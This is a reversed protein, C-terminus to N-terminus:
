KRYMALMRKTVLFGGSINITAFFIAAVSLATAPATLAGSAQLLGGVIIIGSIANTVAMLPTHLSHSVNWVVQWGVFCALIFVTFHQLFESSEGSSDAGSTVKLYTWLLALPVTALLLWPRGPGEDKAQLMVPEVEPKKAAPPPEIRPPPWLVEGKECILAGRVVEDEHDVAFGDEKTMDSLLHVLNQAYLESATVPLRCTLDRHGVITVGHAVIVEGPETCACNGGQEAALDVVVSGPKMAKVMEENWLIPAKSGAVLATTIVIDVDAAQEMFLAMQADKYAQSMEKAYGGATEGDEEISVELFDGGLSGVQEKVAARVDFARVIAGLGKAAGIAALGAVGAGVVLVKAPPIKGAATMQGTFFSGFHNAAEVVGRYGAINAMSSRADMKQARSIRPICCIGLTTAGSAALAEVLATNKPPLVYSILTKTSDLMAVESESPPNVKFVIDAQAWLSAADGVISAGVAEFAADSFSAELGAGAQISVEYGLKITKKVSNPTAAVRREGELTETPIGIRMPQGGM